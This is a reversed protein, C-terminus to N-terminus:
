AGVFLPHLVTRALFEGVGSRVNRAEVIPKLVPSRGAGSEQNVKMNTTTTATLNM